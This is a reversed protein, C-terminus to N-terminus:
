DYSNQTLIKNGVKEYLKQIQQLGEMSLFLGAQTPAHHIPKRMLPTRPTRIEIGSQAKGM